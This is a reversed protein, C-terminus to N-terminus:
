ARLQEGLLRDLSVADGLAAAPDGVGVVPRALGPPDAIRKWADLDLEPLRPLHLQLTALHQAPVPAVRRRGLLRECLVTEELSAVHALDTFVAGEGDAAPDLRQDDGSAEVHVRALDLEDQLLM